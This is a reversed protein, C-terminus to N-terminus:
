WRNYGVLEEVPETLRPLEMNILLNLVLQALWSKSSKNRANSRKSKLSKRSRRNGRTRSKVSSSSRIITTVLISKRFKKQRSTLITFRIIALRAPNGLPHCLHKLVKKPLISSSTTKV